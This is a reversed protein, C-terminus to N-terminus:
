WRHMAPSFPLYTIGESLSARIEFFTNTIREQDGPIKIMSFSPPLGRRPLACSGPNIFTVTSHDIREAIHTHGFLVLDAKDQTAQQEIQNMGYYVGFVHGHTILVNMGAVKANIMRPAYIGWDEKKISVQSPNFNVPFTNDDGNGQVLAAVPPFIEQFKKNKRTFELLEIFDDAGDGCFAIMDAHPGFNEVINKLAEFKGHSDSIALIVASEKKALESVASDSGILYSNTQKLSNM